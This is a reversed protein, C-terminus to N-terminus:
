ATSCAPGAVGEGPSVPGVLPCRRFTSSCGPRVTPSVSATSSPSSASSHDNVLTVSFGAASVVRVGLKELAAGLQKAGKVDIAEVRVRCARLSKEAVGPPLGISAWYAAVPEAASARSAAVVYRRDVLRRLAEHIADSPYKKELSRVLDRVRAGGQGISAALECYLGGHLFFKRNESYLCVSETPLVYVSFNPAFRVVAKGDLQAAGDARHDTAVDARAGRRKKGGTHIVM